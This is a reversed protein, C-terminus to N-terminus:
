PAAQRSHGDGRHANEEEEHHHELVAADEQRPEELAGLPDVGKGQAVPLFEPAEIGSGHDSAYDISEDHGQHPREESHEKGVVHFPPPHRAPAKKVAHGRQRVHQRPGTKTDPIDQGEIM